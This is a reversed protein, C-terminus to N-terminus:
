FSESLTHMSLMADLLFFQVNVALPFVQMHTTRPAGLLSELEFSSDYSRAGAM